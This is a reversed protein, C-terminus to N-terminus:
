TCCAFSENLHLVKQAKNRIMTTSGRKMSTSTRPSSAIPNKHWEKKKKEAAVTAHPLEQALSQVQALATSGLQQLSLALNRVRQAM